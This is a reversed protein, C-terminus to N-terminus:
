PGKLGRYIMSVPVRLTLFAGSVYGTEPYGRYQYELGFLSLGIAASVGFNAQYDVLGGLQLWAGSAISLVEAQIGFTAACLSSMQYTLGLAFYSPDDARLLGARIRGFGLFRNEGQTDGVLWGPGGDLNIDWGWGVDRPIGIRGSGSRVIPPGADSALPEDDDAARQNTTEGGDQELSVPEVGDLDTQGPSVSVGDPEDLGGGTEAAQSEPLLLYCLLAGLIALYQM